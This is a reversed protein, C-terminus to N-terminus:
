RIRMMLAVGGLSLFVALADERRFPHERLCGRKVGAEYCRVEMATALEMARAFTNLFLPVLISLYAHGRSRLGGGSFDVGRCRQAKIIKDLELFLVPIFRLAITLMMAFEESPFGLRKAPSLLREIAFTLEMTSTTLTLLSTFSVLMILRVTFYAGQSLGQESISVPGWQFLVAGGPTLFLHLFFTMVILFLIPKLGKWFFVLSLRSSLYVVLWSAAFVAYQKWSNFVFIGVMLGITLVLKLFPNTRHVISDGPIYQGIVLQSAFFSMTLDASSYLVGCRPVMADLAEPPLM